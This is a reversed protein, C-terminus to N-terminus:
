NNLKTQFILIKKDNNIIHINNKELLRIIKNNSQPRDYKAYIGDLTDLIAWKELKENSLEYVDKYDWIPILSDSVFRSGLCIKKILRKIKLLIKIRKKLFSEFMEYKVFKKIIPRWFFYKPHLFGVKPLKYIDFFIYGDNKVFEHIKIISKLPKPTHQLVGRCFVIDFKKKPILKTFDSKIITVNKKNKAINYFVSSSLDVSVCENAYKSLYETFRGAGSGIELIDKDKIIELNNFLMKELYNYSLKFNNKSDIQIDRHDRWQKGFNVTYLDDNDLILVNNSKQIFNNKFFKIESYM